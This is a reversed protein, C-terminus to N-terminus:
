TLKSKKPLLQNSPLPNRVNGSEPFIVNLMLTDLESDQKVAQQIDIPKITKRNERHTETMSCELIEACLYEIVGTMYVAATKGVRKHCKKMKNFIRAVPFVLGSKMSTRIKPNQGSNGGIKKFQITQQGPIKNKKHKKQMKGKGKGKGTNKISNRANANQSGNYSYSNGGSGQLDNKAGLNSNPVLATNGTNSTVLQVISASNGTNANIGQGSNLKVNQTSNLNVGQNSNVGQSSKLNVGQSSNLNVGQNINAFNNLNCVPLPARPYYNQLIRVCTANFEAKKGIDTLLRSFRCSDAFSKFIENNCNLLYEMAKLSEMQNDGHDREIIRCLINVINNELLEIIQHQLQQYFFRSVIFIMDLKLVPDSGTLYKVLVPIFNKNIMNELYEWGLESQKKILGSFFHRVNVQHHELFGVIVTLTDRFVPGMTEFDGIKRLLFLSDEFYQIDSLRTIIGYGLRKEIAVKYYEENPMIDIGKKIFQLTYSVLDKEIAKELIGGAQLLVKSYQEKTLYNFIGLLMELIYAMSVEDVHLDLYEEFYQFFNLYNASLQKDHLISLLKYSESRLQPYESSLTRPFIHAIDRFLQSQTMLSPFVICLSTLGQLVEFLVQQDTSQLLSKFIKLSESAESSNQDRIKRRLVIALELSHKESSQLSKLKDIQTVIVTYSGTFLKQTDPFRLDVKLM